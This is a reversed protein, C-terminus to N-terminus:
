RGDPVEVLALVARYGYGDCDICNKDNPFDKSTGSGSCRACALQVARVGVAAGIQEASLRGSVGAERLARFVGHGHTGVTAGSPSARLVAIVAREAEVAAHPNEAASM